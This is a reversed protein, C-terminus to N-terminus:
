VKWRKLMPFFQKMQERAEEKTMKKESDTNFEDIYTLCQEIMGEMSVDSTFVGDKYCYACYETNVSGDANKSYHEQSLPMGCSQCFNQEM